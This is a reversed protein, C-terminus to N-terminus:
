RHDPQMPTPVRVTIAMWISAASITDTSPPRSVILMMSRRSSGLQSLPGGYAGASITNSSYSKAASRGTTLPVRYAPFRFPRLASREPSAGGETPQYSPFPAVLLPRQRRVSHLSSSKASLRRRNRPRRPLPRHRQQPKRRTRGPSRFRAAAASRVRPWRREGMNPQSDPNLRLGTRRGCPGILM